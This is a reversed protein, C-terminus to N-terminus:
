VTVSSVAKSTPIFLHANHSGIVVVHGRISSARAQEGTIRQKEKEKQAKDQGPAVEPQDPRGQAQGV